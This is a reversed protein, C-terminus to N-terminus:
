YEATFAINAIVSQQRATDALEARIGLDFLLWELSLAVIGSVGDGNCDTRLDLTSLTSRNAIGSAAGTLVVCPAYSSHVM